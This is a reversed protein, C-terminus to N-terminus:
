SSCEYPGKLAMKIDSAINYMYADVSPHPETNVRIDDLEKAIESLRNIRNKVSNKKAM